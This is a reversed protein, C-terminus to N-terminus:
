TSEGLATEGEQLVAQRGSSIQEFSSVPESDHVVRLIVEGAILHREPAYSGDMKNLEAIAAVPSVLKSNDLEALESLRLRREEVTMPHRALGEQLATLGPTGQNGTVGLVGAQCDRDQRERYRRVNERTAIRQEAPNKYPM